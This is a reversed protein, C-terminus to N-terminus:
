QSVVVFLIIRFFCPGHQFFGIFQIFRIGADQHFQVLQVFFETIRVPLAQVEQVRMSSNYFLPIIQANFADCEVVLNTVILRCVIQDVGAFEM